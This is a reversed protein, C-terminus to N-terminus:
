QNEKSVIMDYLEAESMIKAGLAVAVKLKGSESQGDKRPQWDRNTVLIARHSMLEVVRGGAKRIIRAIESRPVGMHGSICFQKGKLAM